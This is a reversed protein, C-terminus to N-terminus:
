IATEYYFTQSSREAGANGIERGDVDYVNISALKNKALQQQLVVELGILNGQALEAAAWTALQQALDSAYGAQQQQVIYRSSLSAVLTLCLAVLLCAGGSMVALRQTLGLKSFLTGM